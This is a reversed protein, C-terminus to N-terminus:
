RFLHTFAGLVKSVHTERSLSEVLGDALAAVGTGLAVAAVHLGMFEPGGLTYNEWIAETMILGILPFAAIRMWSDYKHNLLNYWLTGMGYSAAIVLAVLGFENLETM